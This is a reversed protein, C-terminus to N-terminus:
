ERTGAVSEIRIRGDEGPEVRVDGGYRRGKLESAEIRACLEEPGLAALPSIEVRGDVTVGAQRLWRSHEAVMLERASELSDEGTRNKIPAFEEERRVEVCIANRAAPLADFVFKEFKRGKIRIRTGDQTIGELSKRAVHYPLDVTGDAVRRFFPLRFAHIAISGAWYVLEGSENRRHADEASLDSYEIIRLRGDEVVAVGLKEEPGNKRLVKLSMEAGALDHLGLFLPDAMRILANDVQFYFLHEIGRREADELGGSELFAAYVGGHGNPSLFVSGPSELVMKGNEDVAPLMAQKFFLVRDAPLGFNQHEAFFRRTAADNAESTMIYLPPVESVTRALARIKEGHLQFLSKGSLPGTPLSGKPGAFGLRSGQGGAVLLLGVKGQTLLHRGRAEADSRTAFPADECCRVVPAPSRDGRPVDGKILGEGRALGAVRGLDIRELQALLARRGQVDLNRWFRFVHEQGAERYTEHLRPPIDLNEVVPPTREQMFSTAKRNEFSKNCGARRDREKM